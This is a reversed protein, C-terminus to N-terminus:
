GVTERKNLPFSLLSSPFCFCFSSSVSALDLIMSSHTIRTKGFWLSTVNSCGKEAELLKPFMVSLLYEANKDLEGPLSTRKGRERKAWLRTPCLSPRVAPGAPALSPRGERRDPPERLASGPLAPLGGGRTVAGRAGGM